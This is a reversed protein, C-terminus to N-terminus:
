PARLPLPEIRTMAATAAPARAELHPPEVTTKYIGASSVFLFQRAGAAGKAWEIVPGVSAMDKGNNDVM